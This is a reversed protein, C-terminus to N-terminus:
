RRYMAKGGVITELVEIDRIGEPDDLPNASLIVIDALKGPEISGLRDEQFCQWAADITTARLAELPTVREEPGIQKGSSSIRNVAAWVMLLPTIPVVPTDCHITYRLGRDAASRAPSIQMAREPGLYIDRHRDGWYYTHLTYFTPSVGLRAMENLQDIRATQSHVVLHRTNDRPCDKQAEGYAYLIDDIAADGNGHIAIQLGASHLKKVMKSLEERPYIPYGRYEADGEYPTHYPLSLYGTYGPISGDAFIKAAGKILNDNSSVNFPRRGEKIALAQEWSPWVVVRITLRDSAAAIEFLDLEALKAYGNQATTVGVRLYEKAATDIVEFNQEETLAPILGRVLDLASFEEFVGNPEGTEPNKQIIGGDPQPTDKSIGAMELAVSNAAGLHFSVHIALVPHDPSVNDLDYRDPHRNEKFQGHDYGVGVVWKGKPTESAKELLAEIVDDIGEITGMPPGSLDVYHLYKRGWEPFHGHGDIFGPLLTKGKLDIIRTGDDAYVRVDEDTGVALIRDGKVAAAQAVTNQEDMTLVIGNVYIANASGSITFTRGVTGANTLTVTEHKNQQTM